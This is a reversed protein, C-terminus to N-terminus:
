YSLKQFVALLIGIYILFVIFVIFEISAILSPIGKGFFLLYLGGVVYNGLYFRPGGLWGLFFTIMLLASKSAPRRQRVGCKPCIEAKKHIVANGTPCLKEDAELIPTAPPAYPTNTM